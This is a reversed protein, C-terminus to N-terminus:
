KWMKTLVTNLRREHKPAPNNDIKEQFTIKDQLKSLYTTNDLIATDEEENEIATKGYDMVISKDGKDAPIIIREHDNAMEYVATWELKSM